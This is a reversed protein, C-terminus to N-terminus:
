NSKKSQSYVYKNINENTTYEAKVKGLFGLDYDFNVHVSQEVSGCLVLSNLQVTIKGKDYLAQHRTNTDSVLLFDGVFVIVEKLQLFFFDLYLYDLRHTIHKVDQALNGHRTM